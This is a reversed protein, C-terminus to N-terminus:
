ITSRHISWSEDQPKLDTLPPGSGFVVKSWYGIDRRFTVHGRMMLLTASGAVIIECSAERSLEMLAEVSSANDAM